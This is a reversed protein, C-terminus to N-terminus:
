GPGLAPIVKLFNGRAILIRPSNKKLAFFRCFTMKDGQLLEITMEAGFPSRRKESFMRALECFHTASLYVVHKFHSEAFARISSTKGCQRVGKVVLPKHKPEDLWNELIQDIKRKFVNEQGIKKYVYM